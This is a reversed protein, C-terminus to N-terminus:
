GNRDGGLATKIERSITDIYNDINDELAQSINPHLADEFPAYEVNSGVAGIINDGQKEVKHTWSRKLTGPAATGVGTHTVMMTDAQFKIVAKTMGREAAQLVKSLETDFNSFDAM